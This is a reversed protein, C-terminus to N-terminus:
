HGSTSESSSTLIQGAAVLAAARGAGDGVGGVGSLTQVHFGAVPVAVTGAVGEAATVLHAHAGLGVLAGVALTGTGVDETRGVGLASQEITLGPAHAM